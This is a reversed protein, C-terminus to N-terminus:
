PRLVARLRPAIGSLSASYASEVDKIASAQKGKAAKLFLASVLRSVRPNQQPPWPAGDAALRLGLAPTQALYAIGDRRPEVNLRWRGSATELTLGPPAAFRSAYRARDEASRIHFELRNGSSTLLGEQRLLAIESPFAAEIRIGFMQLFDEPSIEKGGCIRVVLYKVM